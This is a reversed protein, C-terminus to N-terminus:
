PSSSSSAAALLLLAELVFRLRFCSFTFCDSRTISLITALIGSGEPGACNILEDSSIALFVVVFLPQIQIKISITAVECKAVLKDLMLILSNCYFKLFIHVMRNKM